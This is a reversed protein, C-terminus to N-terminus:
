LSRQVCPNAADAIWEYWGGDFVGIDQWGMLWAYFFALSARWGTGCYFALRMGPHIGAAAWLAAIDSAPRMCGQADQFSSMSNVDGDNGAHGWLAGAIEGRQAIYSYGSTEGM